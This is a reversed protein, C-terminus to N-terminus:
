YYNHISRISVSVLSEHDNSHSRGVAPLGSLPASRVERSLAGVQETAKATSDRSQALQCGVRTCLTTPALIHVYLSTSVYYTRRGPATHAGRRGALCGCAAGGLLTPHLLPLYALPQTRHTGM